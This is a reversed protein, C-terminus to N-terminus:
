DGIIFPQLNADLGYVAERSTMSPCVISRTSDILNIGATNTIESMDMLSHSINMTSLKKHRNHMLANAKDPHAERWSRSTWVFLPVHYEYISGSYTGHLFMGREDDLLNEGHDGVYVLVAKKGTQELAEIVREIFYDTFLIANDYSNVMVEKRSAKLGDKDPMYVRYSEPYRASYKYHCGLSHVIIMKHVASDTLVQQLPALLVTDVFTEHARDDHVYATYDCRSSINLLFHNAYSQDAIWSTEYGAEHFVDVVSQESLYLPLDQPTARSLILPVSVTTLNAISYCSDFSVLEGMSDRRCLYPSTARNYGNVQWHDYRSTEGILFLVIDPEDSAVPSIGFHYDQLQAEGSNIEKNINYIQVLRYCINIPAVKLMPERLQPICAFCAICLPLSIGAAIRGHRGHLPFTYENSIFRRVCYFYVGWLAFFAVVVFWYSSLLELFEGKESILCTYVFLISTTAKNVVLHVIEVASFLLWISAVYFFTRRRLLYLGLLYFLLASIIYVIRSEICGLDVAMFMGMLNPLFLFLSLTIFTILESRKM